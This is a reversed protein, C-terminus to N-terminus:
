SHAGLKVALDEVVTALERVIPGLHELDLEGRHALRALQNLNTGVRRIELQAALIVARDDDGLRTITLAPRPSNDEPRAALAERVVARVYQSPRLGLAGAARHVRARDTVTM